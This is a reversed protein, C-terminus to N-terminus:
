SAGSSAQLDLVNPQWGLRGLLALYDDPSMQEPRRGAATFLVGEMVNTGFSRGNIVPTTTVLTAVGRQRLERQDEETTTNTLICKGALSDPMHRRILHFDGAIVDAWEYWRGWRPTVTEQKEGTPYLMRFPLKVFLPLLVAALFQFVAWSRIAFPLGVAFMLDGICLDAGAEHLAEALGFRDVASVVLVKKGAWNIRGSSQLRRVTERELTNKLGSGDAWPTTKINRVLRVADRVAYRRGRAWLYVDMGGIGIADVRGDMERLRRAYTEISGDTGIREIEYTEGFFETEVRKDRSSSGLSISVVRKM